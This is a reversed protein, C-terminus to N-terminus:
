RAALNYFDINDSLSTDNQFRLTGLWESAKWMGGAIHPHYLMRQYLDTTGSEAVGLVYYYPLCRLRKRSYDSANDPRSHKTEKLVAPYMKNMFCQSYHKWLYGIMTNNVYVARCKEQTRIIQNTHRGHFLCKHIRESVWLRPTYAMDKDIKDTLFLPKADTNTSSESLALIYFYGYHTAVM